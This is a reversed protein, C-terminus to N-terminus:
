FDENVASYHKVVENKEILLIEELNGSFLKTLKNRLSKATKLNTKRSITFLQVTGIDLFVGVVLYKKM